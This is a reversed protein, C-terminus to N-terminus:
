RGLLVFRWFVTLFVGLFSLASGLDAEVAVYYLMM